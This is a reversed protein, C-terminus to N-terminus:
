VLDFANFLKIFRGDATDTIAIHLEGVLLLPHSVAYCTAAFIAYDAEIALVRLAEVGNAGTLPGGKSLTAADAARLAVAGISHVSLGGLGVVAVDTSFVEAPCTVLLEIQALAIRADTDGVHQCCTLDSM